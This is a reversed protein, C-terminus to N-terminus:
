YLKYLKVEIDFILPPLYDNYCIRKDEGYMYYHYASTGHLLILEYRYGNELVPSFELEYRNHIVTHHVMGPEYDICPENVTYQCGAFLLMFIFLLKKM